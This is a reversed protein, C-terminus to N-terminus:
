IVILALFHPKEFSRIKAAGASGEHKADGGIM